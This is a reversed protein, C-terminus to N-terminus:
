RIFFLLPSPSSFLFLFVLLSALCLSIHNTKPVRLVLHATNIQVKQLKNLLYHPCGSLLSNCYDLHLFAFASVLIQTVDAFLLHHISGTSSLFFWYKLSRPSLHSIIPVPHYNKLENWDQPMYYFSKESVTMFMIICTGGIRCCQVSASM